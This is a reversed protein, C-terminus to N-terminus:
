PGMMPAPSPGEGFTNGQAAPQATPRSAPALAPPVVTMVHGDNRCPRLAVLAATERTALHATYVPHLALPRLAYTRANLRARNRSIRVGALHRLDCDGDCKIAAEKKTWLELCRVSSRGAWAQERQSFCHRFTTETLARKHEADIGVATTASLACAVLGTCHTISFDVPPSVGPKAHLPCNLQALRFRNAGTERMGLKLLQLGVLTGIRATRDRIEACRLARAYPLEALWVVEQTASVGDLDLTYYIFVM